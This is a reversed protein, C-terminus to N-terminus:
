KNFKYINFSETKYMLIFENNDPFDDNSIYFENGNRFLATECNRAMCAKIIDRKELKDDIIVYPRTTMIISAIKIDRLMGKKFNSQKFNLTSLYLLAFIGMLILMQLVFNLHKKIKENWVIWKISDMLYGSVGIIILLYASFNYFEAQKQSIIIPLTGTLGLFIFFLNYKKDDEVKLKKKKLFFYSILLLVLIPLLNLLTQILIFYNFLRNSSNGINGNLQLRYYNELYVRSEPFIFYTTLICLALSLIIISSYIFGTRFKWKDKLIYFLVPGAIPFLAIPGKTIFGLFIFISAVILYLFHKKEFFLIQFYISTLIFINLSIELLNNRLVWAMFPISAILLIPIWYFKQSNPHIKNWILRTLWLTISILLFCYINETYWHNGIIKFFIAELGFGLPPHSYFPIGNNSFFFPSWFSGSGLSLNKSISAYWIGDMFMGEGVLQPLTLIGISLISLVIFLTNTNKM